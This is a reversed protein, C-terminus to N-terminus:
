GAFVASHAVVKSGQPKARCRVAQRPRPRQELAPAALLLATLPHRRVASFHLRATLTANLNPPVSLHRHRHAFLDARVLSITKSVVGVPLPPLLRFVEGTAQMRPQQETLVLIRLPAPASVLMVQGRVLALEVELAKLVEPREFAQAVARRM